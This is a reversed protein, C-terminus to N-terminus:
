TLGGDVLLTIARGLVEIEGLEPDSRDVAARERWESRLSQLADAAAVPRRDAKRTQSSM